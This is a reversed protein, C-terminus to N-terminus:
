PANQSLELARVYAVIAWRDLVSIQKDYAPMNRIGNSITNYIHGDPRTGIKADHLNQPDVWAGIAGVAGPDARLSKVRQAVAGDGYGSEGHCPACYINFREQGRHVFESTVGIQQPIKAVFFTDKAIAEDSENHPLIKAFDADSTNAPRNRGLVLAAYVSPDNLEMTTKGDLNKILGPNQPDNLVESVLMMDEQAVTGAVEPRMFRNDAFLPTARQAKGKPQKDMDLVLHPPLNDSQSARSRAILAFPLLGLVMLTLIIGITVKSM